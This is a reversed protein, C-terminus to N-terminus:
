NTDNPPLFNKEKLDGDKTKTLVKIQGEASELKENCFRILMVAEEYLALATDLTASGNELASVIDKIRQLAAEFTKQEKKKSTTKKETTKETM